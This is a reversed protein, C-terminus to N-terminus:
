RPPAPPASPEDWIRGERRGHAVYHEHAGVQGLSGDRGYVRDKAVDPYRDWYAEALRRVVAPDAAATGERVIAALYAQRAALESSLLPSHFAGYAYLGWSALVLAVAGLFLPNFRSAAAPM